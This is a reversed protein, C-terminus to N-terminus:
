SRDWRHYLTPGAPPWVVEEGCLAARVTRALVARRTRVTRGSVGLMDGIQEPTRGSALEALLRVDHPPAGMARSLRIVEVVVTGSHDDDPVPWDPVRRVAVERTCGYLRRPRVFAQYETDRLIGAAVHVPRRAIPFGRIREWATPLLEAICGMTGGRDMRGRRVAIALLGPMVRQLVVLAALDDDAAVAVLHALRADALDDDSRCRFGVLQLVDDLSCIDAAPFWTRARAVAAASDTIRVWQRDLRGVLGLPGPDSRRGAEVSPVGPRGVGRHGARDHRDHDHRDHDHHDDDPHDLTPTCTAPATVISMAADDSRPTM